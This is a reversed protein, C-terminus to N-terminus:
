AVIQTNTKTENPSQLSDPGSHDCTLILIFQSEAPTYDKFFHPVGSVLSLCLNKFLKPRCVRVSM